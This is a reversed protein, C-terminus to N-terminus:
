ITWEDNAVAVLYWDNGSKEFVLYLAQWDMAGGQPGTIGEHDYTVIISRPYIELLNDITNGGHRGEPNYAPTKDSLLDQRYVFRKLYQRFTMNIHAGSGDWEGWTLRRNSRYLNVLQQRNLVRTTKVDVYVYPSFRVGKRPHVFSALKRMDRNKIALMIRRARTETLRKAEAPSMTYRRAEGDQAVARQMFASTFLTAAILITALKRM